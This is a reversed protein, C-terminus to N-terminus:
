TDALTLSRAGPTLEVMRSKQNTPPQCACSHAGDHNSASATEFWDATHRGFGLVSQEIVQFPCTERRLVIV